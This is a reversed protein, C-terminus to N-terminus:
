YIRKVNIEELIKETIARKYGIEKEKNEWRPFLEHELELLDFAKGLIFSILDSTKEPLHYFGPSAPLVHGGAESITVLNRMHILNYPAERPVIILKRREKLMVDATRALLNDGTGNAISGLTKMSCPIIIMGDAKHSGSALSSFLDNIAHVMAYKELESKKVGCEYEIVKEGTSTIIAHVEVGLQKLCKLAGLGYIAGSAGTIGIIIKM